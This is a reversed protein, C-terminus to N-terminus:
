TGGNHLTLYAQWLLESESEFVEYDTEDDDPLHALYNAVKDEFEAIKSQRIPRERVNDFRPASKLEAKVRDIGGSKIMSDVYHAFHMERVNDSCEKHGFHSLFDNWVLQEFGQVEFGLGKAILINKVFNPPNM